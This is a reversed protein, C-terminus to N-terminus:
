NVELSQLLAVDDPVKALQNTGLNLEVMNTWTGIDLPLSTLLNEKMNLKTLHKARSFIGYPIKDVQNHELNLSQVNIFQSPGGSPYATFANRSFTISTLQSLSSLLGDPLHSIANGEVNFEDMHICNSLSRPVSTLRNYRLGLRTLARLQGTPVM